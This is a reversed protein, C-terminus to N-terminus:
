NLVGNRPDPLQQLSLWVCVGWLYGSITHYTLKTNDALWMIWMALKSGREPDDMQLDPRWGMRASFDQWKERGGRVTRMSSPRLRHDMIEHLRDVYESHMGEILTTRTYSISLRQLIGKGLGSPGDGNVVDRYKKTLGRVTGRHPGCEAMIGEAWIGSFRAAELFAAEHDRSLHDSLHNDASALWFFWLVFDGHLQARFLMVVLNQLREAHSWGKVASMQFAQNDVGFPVICHRWGDQLDEVTKVVTDGELEDIPKRAAASGYKWFDYRGCESVYGGGTYNKSKSADSWVTPAAHFLSYDYYGRGCNSELLDALNNCDRRHDLAQM